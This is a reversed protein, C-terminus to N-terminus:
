LGGMSPILKKVVGSTNTSEIYIRDETYSALFGGTYGALISTDVVVKNKLVHKVPPDVPIFKDGQQYYFNGESDQKLGTCVPIERPDNM